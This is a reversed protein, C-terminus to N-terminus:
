IILRKVELSGLLKQEDYLLLDHAEIKDYSNDIREMMTM